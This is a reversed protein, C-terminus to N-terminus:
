EKLGKLGAALFLLVVFFVGVFLMAGLAIAVLPGFIVLIIMKAFGQITNKFAQVTDEFWNAIGDLIGPNRESFDPVPTGNSPGSIGNGPDPLPPLKGGGGVKNPNSLGASGCKRGYSVGSTGAGQIDSPGAGSYKLCVKKVLSRQRGHITIAGQEARGGILSNKVIVRHPQPPPPYQNGGDPEDASIPTADIKNVIRTNKITVAGATPFVAILSGVGYNDGAESLGRIDCNVITGGAPDNSRTPKSDWKIGNSSPFGQKSGLGKYKKEDLVITAGDVRSGKGSARVQSVDNNRWLGGYIETNGPTRGGYLGNDPSNEIHCDILQLTGHHGTGVWVIPMGGKNKTGSKGGGVNAYRVVRV